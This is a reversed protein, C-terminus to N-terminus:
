FEFEAANWEESPRWEVEAKPRTNPHGANVRLGFITGTAMGVSPDNVLQIEFRDNESGDSIAHTRLAIGADSDPKMRFEFRLIFNSFEQESFIWWNLNKQDKGVDDGVLTQQKADVSWRKPDIPNWVSLDRGNFLPTFDGVAPTKSSPGRAANRRKKGGPGQN